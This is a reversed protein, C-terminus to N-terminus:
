SMPIYWNVIEPSWLPFKYALFIKEQRTSFFTVIKPSQNSNRSVLKWKRNVTIFPQAGGGENLSPNYSKQFLKFNGM